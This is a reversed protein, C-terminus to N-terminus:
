KIKRVSVDGSTLHEIEGGDLEVILECSEGIGIVRAPYTRNPRIVNVEAGVLMSRRRYQETVEPSGATDIERLYIDTIRAILESPDAACGEKELSTAIDRIETPLERGGVNLGIGLAVHTVEGREADLVGQALIGALKLEGIYVDNVWKIRPMLPTLEEIARCVATVAYTTLSTVDAGMPARTLLTMYIGGEPSSFSRGLRGRGATQERAVFLVPHKPSHEKAYELARLNTSDTLDYIIVEPM